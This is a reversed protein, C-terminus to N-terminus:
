IRDCESAVINVFYGLWSVANVNHAVDCKEM